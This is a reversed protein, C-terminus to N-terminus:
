PRIESTTLGFLSGNVFVGKDLYLCKAEPILSFAKTMLWDAALLRLRSDSEIESLLRDAFEKSIWYAATTNAVGEVVISFKPPGRLISKQIGLQEITFAVCLSVYLCEAVIGTQISKLEGFSIDFDSALYIDDEVVLGSSGSRSIHELASIHKETLALEAFVRKQLKPWSHSLTQLMQVLHESLVQLYGLVSKKLRVQKSIAIGLSYFSRKLVFRRSLAKFPAQRELIKSTSSEWFPGLFATLSGMATNLRAKNGNHIIIVSFTDGDSNINM